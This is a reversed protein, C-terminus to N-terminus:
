AGGGREEGVNIKAEVRGNGRHEGLASRTMRSTVAREIDRLRHMTRERCVKLQRTCQSKVATDTTESLSRATRDHGPGNIM